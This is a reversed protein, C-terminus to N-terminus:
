QTRGDVTLHESEIGLRRPKKRRLKSKNQMLWEAAAALPPKGAIVIRSGQVEARAQERYRGDTFLVSGSEFVLLASATGTFGCLYHINPLHTVLLADLSKRDSNSNFVAQVKKLRGRHDM